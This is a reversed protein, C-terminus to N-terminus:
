DKKIHREQLRQSSRGEGVIRGNEMVYTRDAIRLAQHVNQEILLITIGRDRLCSIIRFLERVMIPALGYSPEDLLCLKPDAMLCRGVALMQKEGGSLCRALQREREQLIPFLQSVQALLQARRAGNERCDAGM